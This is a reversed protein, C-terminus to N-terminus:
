YFGDCPWLAIHELYVATSEEGRCRTQETVANQRAHSRLSCVLMSIREKIEKKGPESWKSVSLFKIQM